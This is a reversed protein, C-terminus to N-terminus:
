LGLTKGTSSYKKIAKVTIEDLGNENAEKVIVNVEMFKPKLWKELNCVIVVIVVLPNKCGFHKVM